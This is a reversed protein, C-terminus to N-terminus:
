KLVLAQVPCNIGSQTNSDFNAAAAEGGHVHRLGVDHVSALVKITERRLVLKRPSKKM